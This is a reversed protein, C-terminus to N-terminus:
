GNQPKSLHKGYSKETKLATAKRIAHIVSRLMQLTAAYAWIIVKVGVVLVFLAGKPQLHVGDVGQVVGRM